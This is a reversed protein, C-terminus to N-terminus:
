LRLLIVKGDETGAALTTGDPSFSITEVGAPLDHMKPEAKTAIEWVFIRGAGNGKEGSAFLRGNSSFSIKDASVQPNKLSRVVQWTKTNFMTVEAPMQGAVALLGGDPSFTADIVYNSEVRVSQVKENSEVNWFILHPAGAVQISTPAAQGIVLARGDPSFALASIGRPLDIIRAPQGTNVDWIRIAGDPGGSALLRGNPSFALRLARATSGTFVKQERGDKADLLGIRYEDGTQLRNNIVRGRDYSVASSRGDPSLEMALLNSITYEDKDRVGDLDTRWVTKGTRVNWLIITGNFSASVLHEGDPMFRVSTISSKGHVLTRMQSQAEARHSLLLLLIVLVDLYLKTM